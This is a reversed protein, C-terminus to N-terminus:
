NLYMDIDDIDDIADEVRGVLDPDSRLEELIPMVKDELKGHVRALHGLCSIAIKKVDIFESKIFFLCKEQVWLWDKDHYTISLLAECILNQDGSDFMSNVTCREIPTVEKLRM